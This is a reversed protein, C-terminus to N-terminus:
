IYQFNLDSPSKYEKAQDSKWAGVKSIVLIELNTILLQMWVYTLLPQSAVGILVTLFIWPSYSSTIDIKLVFLLHRNDNTILKIKM